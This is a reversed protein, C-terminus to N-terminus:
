GHDRNKPLLAWYNPTALNPKFGPVESQQLQAPQPTDNNLRETGWSM